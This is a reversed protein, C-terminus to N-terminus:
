SYTSLTALEVSSRVCIYTLNDVFILLVQDCITWCFDFQTYRGSSPMCWATGYLHLVRARGVYDASFQENKGNLTVFAM